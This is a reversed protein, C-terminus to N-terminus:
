KGPNLVLSVGFGYLSNKAGEFTLHNIPISVFDFKVNMPYGLGFMAMPFTLGIGYRLNFKARDYLINNEPSSVGGVRLSIIKFLTAELGAGCYDVDEAESPNLLNKFEGTLLLDLNTNAKGIHTEIKYAFGFRLYRPLKVNEKETTVSTTEVSFDTGFNQISVGLSFNDITARSNFVGDHQYLAGVDCLFSANSTVNYEYGISNVSRNFLKASIGLSFGNVIERSYSFLYLRNVDKTTQLTPNKSLTIEGSSYQNYSFGFNGLFNSTTAGFSYYMMNETLKSWGNSRYNYFLKSTGKGPLAAPNEFFSSSSNSNAVFSEGLSISSIDTIIDVSTNRFTTQAQTLSGLFLLVIISRKM